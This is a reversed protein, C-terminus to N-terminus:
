KSYGTSASSQTSSSYTSEEKACAGLAIALAGLAILALHKMLPWLDNQFPDAPTDFKEAPQDARSFRGADRAITPM